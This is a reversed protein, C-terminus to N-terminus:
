VEQVPIGRRLAIRFRNAFASTGRCDSEERKEMADPLWQNIMSIRHENQLACTLM